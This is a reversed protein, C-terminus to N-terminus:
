EAPVVQIVIDRIYKDVSRLHAKIRQNIQKAERVHLDADLRMIIDLLVYRGAQRAMVRDVQRVGNVKLIQQKIEEAYDDTLSTDMVGRVGEQLIPVSGFIIHMCELIAILPDVWNLGQRAVIVGVAVLLSSIVDIKNHEAHAKLVPSNLERAGCHAFKYVLGNVIASMVATFFVVLHPIVIVRKAIVIFSSCVLAVTGLIMILSMAVQAIFEVKGYGYPYRRNPPRRSLKVGIIVVLASTVDSLNCLGSGVLARSRGLFGIFLKFVALLFNVLLGIISTNRACAECKATNKTKGSEPSM